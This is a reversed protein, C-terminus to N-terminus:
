KGLNEKLLSIFQDVDEEFPDHGLGEMELVKVDLFNRGIRQSNSLPVITDRTGHIISIGIVDPHRLADQLLGLDGGPYSSLSSFLRTRTFALLGREWGKGISPWQFRLVDSESVLKPDGWVARLGKGWFNPTHVLRRLLYELVTDIFIKRFLGFFRGVLIMVTSLRQTFFNSFLEVMHNSKFRSIFSSIYTNSLSTSNGQRQEKSSSDKHDEKLKSGLLAPAVLIVRRKLGSPLTLAMHLAALSGVSHGILLVAQKDVKTETETEFRTEAEFETNKNGELNMEQVVLSNGIAASAVSSYEWLNGHPRDTFGFGAADHALVTRANLRKALKPIVPLFSLSSAGFGHSAHITHYQYPLSSPSATPSQEQHQQQQEEEEEKSVVHRLYHINNQVAYSPIKHILKQNHITQTGITLNDRCDILSQPFLQYPIPQYQSLTSPLCNNQQLSLTSVRSPQYGIERIVEKGTLFLVLSRFIFSIISKRPLINKRIDWSITSTYTQKVILIISVTAWFLQFTAPITRYVPSLEVPFNNLNPEDFRKLPPTVTLSHTGSSSSSSSGSSQRWSSFAFTEGIHSSGGGGSSSSSISRSPVMTMRTGEM